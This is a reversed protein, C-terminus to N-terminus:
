AGDSAEVLALIMLTDRRIGWKYYFCNRDSPVELPALYHIKQPSIAQAHHESYGVPRYSESAM